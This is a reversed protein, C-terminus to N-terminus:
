PQECQDLEGPVSRHVGVCEQLHTHGGPHQEDGVVGVLADNAGHQSIRGRRHDHLGGLGGGHDAVGGVFHHVRHPCTQGLCDTDFSEDHLFILTALPNARRQQVM